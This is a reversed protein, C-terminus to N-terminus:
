NNSAKYSIYSLGILGGFLLLGTGVGIATDINKQKRAAENLKTLFAIEDKTLPREPLVPVQVAREIVKDVTVPVKEVIKTVEPSVTINKFMTEPKTGASAAYASLFQSIDDSYGSFTSGDALKVYAM